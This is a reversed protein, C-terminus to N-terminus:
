KGEYLGYPGVLLFQKVNGTILDEPNIWTDVYYQKGNYKAKNIGSTNDSDTLFVYGDERISLLALYHARSQSFPKGQAYIVAPYGKKLHELLTPLTNRNLDSVKRPASLGANVIADRIRSWGSCGGGCQGTKKNIPYLEEWVTYPNHLVGTKSKVGMAAIANTASTISCGNRGIGGCTNPNDQMSCYPYKRANGYYHQVYCTYGELCNKGKEDTVINRTLKDVFSCTIENTNGVIDKLNVKVTSPKVITSSYFDSQSTNITSGNVIYEYSSIENDTDISVKIETKNYFRTAICSGEPITKYINDIEIEKEISRDYQDYIIFKYIGNDEVEYDLSKGEEGNPYIIKNFENSVNLSILVNENTLNRPELTYDIVLDSNQSIVNIKRTITNSYGRSNTLTYGLIYEGVVNNNVGGDIKVNNTINGDVIDYGNIGQEVYEHNQVLYILEEGNLSIIPFLNRIIQNDIIIVKRTAVSNSNTTKYYVNYVGEESGVNGIVTVIDNSVYGPEFYTMGKALIIVEDGKLKIFDSIEKNNNIINSKYDNCVLNPHYYEGDFIVGSTLSCNDSLNVGLKSVDLYIEKNTSINNRLVYDKASSVMEEEMKVTKSKLLDKFLVFYSIILSLVILVIVVWNGKIGDKKSVNSDNYINSLSDDYM